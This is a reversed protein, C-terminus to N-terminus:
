MLCLWVRQAKVLGIIFKQQIKRINFINICLFKVRWVLNQYTFIQPSTLKMTDSCEWSKNSQKYIGIFKISMVTVDYHHSLIEFWCGWSQKSLRKNLCLDFVVQFSQTVPRQASFEGTVPSNGRVFPWYCPFHKWKIVDDHTELDDNNTFLSLQSLIFM